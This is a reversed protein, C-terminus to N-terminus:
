FHLSSVIALKDRKGKDKSSVWGCGSSFSKFSRFNEMIHLCFGPNVTPGNNKNKNNIVQLLAL